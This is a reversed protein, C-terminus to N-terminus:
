REGRINLRKKSLNLIYDDNDAIKQTLSYKQKELKAHERAREGYALIRETTPELRFPNSARTIEDGELMM